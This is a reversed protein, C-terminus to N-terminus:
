EGRCWAWPGSHKRGLVDGAQRSAGTSCIEFGYSIDTLSSNAPLYGNDELWTLM